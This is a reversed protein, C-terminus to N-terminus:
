GDTQQDKLGDMLEGVWGDVEMWEDMMWADM